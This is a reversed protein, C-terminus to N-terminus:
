GGAAASKRSVVEAYQQDLHRRAERYCERAPQSQLHSGTAKVDLGCVARAARELRLDLQRQSDVNALDLDGYHVAVSPAEDAAAVPAALVAATLALALSQMKMTVEECVKPQAAAEPSSFAAACSFSYGHDSPSARRARGLRQASSPRAPRRRLGSRPGRVAM